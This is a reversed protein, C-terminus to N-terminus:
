KWWAPPELTGYMTCDTCYDMAFTLEVIAGNNLRVDILKWPLDIHHDYKYEEMYYDYTGMVCDYENADVTETRCYPYRYSPLKYDYLDSDTVYKRKVTVSAVQFYGLVKEGPDNVNHINGPLSYPQREFIDGVEESLMKLQQYFSFEKESIAYQKVSICYKNDLRNTEGAPVFALKKTIRKESQESFSHLLIENSRDHAYCIYNIGNPFIKFSDECSTEYCENFCWFDFNCDFCTDIYVEPEYSVHIWFSDQENKTWGFESIPHFNGCQLECYSTCGDNCDQMSRYYEVFAGRNARIQWDEDYEWRLYQSEDSESEVYFSVGPVQETKDSTIEEGVEYHIDKISTVPPMTCSDSLYERGDATVISLLYTEGPHATFQTSDSRYKGRGTEPFPYVRGGSDLVKVTAGSEVRISTDSPIQSRTLYVEYSNNENTIRADVVLLDMEDKIAVMYPEICSNVLLGFGLLLFIYQFLKTCYKM